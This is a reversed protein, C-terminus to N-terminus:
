RDTVVYLVWGDVVAREVYRDRVFDRVPNLLDETRGDTGVPRDILLPLFGGAGPSPSGADVIVTPPAAELADQLAAVRAQTVYGPTVLPYMFAYPGASGRDADLYVQPENGWVFITEDAATLQRIEASVATSRQHGRLVSQWEMTGGAAGAYASVGLAIALPVYLPFRALESPRRSRLEATRELGLAALLGLPVALPIAYHAFFRGQVVFAVISLAIWAVGAVAEVRRAAGPRLATMFGLAAPIVLFLFSLVLWAAV